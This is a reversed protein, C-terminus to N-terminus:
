EKKVEKRTAGDCYIKYLFTGKYLFFPEPTSYQTTREYGKKDPELPIVYKYWEQREDKVCGYKLITIISPSQREDETPIIQQWAYYEDGIPPYVSNTWRYNEYLAYPARSCYTLPSKVLYDFVRMLYCMDSTPFTDSELAPWYFPHQDGVKVKLWRAYWKWEFRIEEDKAGVTFPDAEIYYAMNKDRENNTGKRLVGETGTPYPLSINGFRSATYTYRMEPEVLKGLFGLFPGGNEFPPLEFCTKVTVIKGADDKKVVGDRDIVPVEFGTWRNGFDVIKVKLGVYKELESAPKAADIHCTMAPIKYRLWGDVDLRKGNRAYNGILDAIGNLNDCQWLTGAMSINTREFVLNAHNVRNNEVYVHGLEPRFDAKAAEANSFYAVAECTTSNTVIKPPQKFNEAWRVIDGPNPSEQTPKDFKLRAIIMTVPPKATPEVTPPTACASLVLGLSVLVFFLTSLKKKM